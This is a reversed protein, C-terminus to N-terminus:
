FCILNGVKFKDRIDERHWKVSNEKRKEKSKDNQCTKCDPKFYESDGIIQSYFESLPLERGCEKCKKM